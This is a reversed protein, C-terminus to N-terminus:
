YSDDVTLGFFESNKTVTLITNFMREFIGICFGTTPDIREAFRFGWGDKKIEYDM